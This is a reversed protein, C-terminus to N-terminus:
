TKVPKEVVKFSREDFYVVRGRRYSEVAMTIAV